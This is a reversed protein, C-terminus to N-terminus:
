FHRPGRPAKPRKRTGVPDELEAAQKILRREFHASHVKQAIGKLERNM